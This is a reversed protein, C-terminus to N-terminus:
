SPGVPMVPTSWAAQRSAPMREAARYFDWSHLGSPHLQNWEDRSIDAVSAHVRGDLEGALRQAAGLDLLVSESVPRQILPIMTM